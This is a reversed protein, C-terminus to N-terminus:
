KKNCFVKGRVRNKNISLLPIKKKKLNRFKLTFRSYTIDNGLKVFECDGQKLSMKLQAFYIQAIVLM